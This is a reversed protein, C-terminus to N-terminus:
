GRAILKSFRHGVREKRLRRIMQKSAVGKGTLDEPVQGVSQRVGKVKPVGAAKGVSVSIRMEEEVEEDKDGPEIGRM